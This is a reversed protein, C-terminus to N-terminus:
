YFLEKFYFANETFVVRKDEDNVVFGVVGHVGFECVEIVVLTIEHYDM